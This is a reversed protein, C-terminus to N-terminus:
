ALHVAAPVGYQSILRQGRPRSLSGPRGADGRDFHRALVALPHGGGPEGDEARIPSGVNLSLHGTGEPSQSGQAGDGTRDGDSDGAKAPPRQPCSRSPRERGAPRCVHGVTRGGGSGARVRAAEPSWGTRILETLTDRPGRDEQQTKTSERM